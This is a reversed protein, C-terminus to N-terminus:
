MSRQVLLSGGDQEKGVSGDRKERGEVTGRWMEAMIGRRRNERRAHAASFLYFFDIITSLVVAVYMIRKLGTKERRERREVGGDKERM